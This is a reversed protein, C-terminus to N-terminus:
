SVNLYMCQTTPNCQAKLLKAIQPIENKEVKFECTIIVVLYKISLLKDLM